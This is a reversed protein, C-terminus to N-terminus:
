VKKVFRRELSELKTEGVWRVTVWGRNGIALVEGRKGRTKHEVKDGPKM